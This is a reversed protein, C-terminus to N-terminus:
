KKDSKELVTGILYGFVSAVVAGFFGYKGAIYLTQYDFAM